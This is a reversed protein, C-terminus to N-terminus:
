IFYPMAIVYMYRGLALTVVAGCALEHKMRMCWLEVQLAAPIWQAHVGAWRRKIGLQVSLGLRHHMRYTTVYQVTATASDYIASDASEKGARGGM